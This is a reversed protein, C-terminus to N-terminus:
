CGGIIGRFSRGGAHRSVRDRQGHDREKQPSVDLAWLEGATHRHVFLLGVAWQEAFPTEYGVAGWCHPLTTFSIRQGSSWLLTATDKVLGMAWLERGIHYDASSSKSGVAGCCHPPTCNSISQVCSGLM